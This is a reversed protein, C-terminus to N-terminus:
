MAKPMLNAMVILVPADIAKNYPGNFTQALGVKQYGFFSMGVTLLYICISQNLKM